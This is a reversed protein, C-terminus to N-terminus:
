WGRLRCRRPRLSGTAPTWAFVAEDSEIVAGRATTTEFLSLAFIAALLSTSLRKAVRM